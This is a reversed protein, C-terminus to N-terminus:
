TTKWSPSRPCTRRASDSALQREINVFMRHNMLERKHTM